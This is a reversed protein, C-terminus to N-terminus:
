VGSSGFGKEGRQSNELEDCRLMSCVLIPQIIMQAIKNGSEIKFDVPDSNYLLVKVEGRYGSDIVGAMVQIGARTSLGSRPWILGVFGKPIEVSVGTSILKRNNPLVVTSELSFLDWGADTLHAKTPVKAKKDLLKVKISCMPLQSGQVWQDM